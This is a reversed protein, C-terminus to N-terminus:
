LHENKTGEKKKFTLLKDRYYEYQKERMNIEVLLDKSIDNCLRDFYDLIDVIRQQEEISPIPFKLKKLKKMDVSAFNSINLNNKCWEDIKFFYYFIFKINLCKKYEEKLILYTFRQNALSDVTILAHEGVTASTALIISNAPFLKGKVANETIHQISDNLIHGNERIDEMRFWPLTGNDWYEIKSKSPTYGNKLNFLEQISIWKVTKRKDTNSLKNVEIESNFDLLSDRYNTYQKRRLVLETELETRLNTKLETLNDLIKVIEKQICLPPIPVTIKGIDDKNIKIPVANVLTRRRLEKRGHSSEIIYKLYKSDLVEMNPKLLALSVYYALPEDRDVVACVGVSGIRTMLVDGIKPTIKYKKFDDISIYKDTKYLNNINQVSVFKVGDNTYQPTSHTGDYIKCVTNLKIYEVGDPCFEKILQELKRM